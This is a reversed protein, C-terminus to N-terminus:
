QRIDAKQFNRYLLLDFVIKLSGSLIFPQTPMLPVLILLVNSPIHTCVMTNIRGIRKALKVACLASLGALLNAAFLLLGLVGPAVGFRM